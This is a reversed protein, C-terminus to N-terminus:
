QVAIRTPAGWHRPAWQTLAWPFQSLDFPATPNRGESRNLESYKTYLDGGAGWPDFGTFANEYHGPEGNFAHNHNNSDTAVLGYTQAARILLRTFPNYPGSPTLDIGSNPLRAWQGHIPVTDSPSATDGDGSKAPWSAGKTTYRVGDPDIAEGNTDPLAMNACTYALAHNITGQRAESIGVFGLWNHMAVVSHLGVECQTSYADISAIGGKDTSAGTSYTGTPWGNRFPDPEFITYANATASLMNDYGATRYTSYYERIIGTGVDILAVGSDQGEQVVLPNAWLPWRNNQFMLKGYADSVGVQYGRIDVLTMQEQRLRSDILIPTIPHTGFVSSNFGTTFTGGGYNTNAAMWNAYVTSNSALPMASVDRTWVSGRGIYPEFVSRRLTMWDGPPRRWQAGDWAKPVTPIWRGSVADWQKPAQPM